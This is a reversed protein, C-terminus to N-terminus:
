TILHIHHTHVIVLHTVIGMIRLIMSLNMMGKNRLDPFSRKGLISSITMVKMIMSIINKNMIMSFNIIMNILPRMSMIFNSKKM